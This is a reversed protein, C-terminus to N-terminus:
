CVYMTFLQKGFLSLTILQTQPWTCTNLLPSLLSYNKTQYNPIYTKSNHYM